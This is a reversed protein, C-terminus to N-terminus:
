GRQSSSRVAHDAGHNAAWNIRDPLEIDGAQAASFEMLKFVNMKAYAQDDGQMCGTILPVFHIVQPSAAKGEFLEVMAREGGAHDIVPQQFTEVVWDQAMRLPTEHTAFYEYRVERETRDSIPWLRDFPVLNKLGFMVIGREVGSKEIQDIAKALHDYYGGPHTSHLVKCAIGWRKKSFDTMVDPNTGGSSRYPDDMEVTNAVFLTLCGIYLEFVKNPNGEHQPTFYHQVFPEDGLLLELHPRLKYFETFDSVAIIKLLLDAM